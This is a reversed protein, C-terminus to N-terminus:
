RKIITGKANKKGQLAKKANTEDTIIAKGHINNTVFWNCAEVKPLMSGESFEQNDIYRQSEIVNMETILKEGQEDYNLYVGPVATLILLIDANLDIALRASTMDKDIVADIGFYENNSQIVPIGGGGCCIVINGSSALKKIINLELVKMPLPSPVVRRYGRGADEKFAFGNEKSIKDADSKSYFDGIPKSPHTFAIDNPNVLVQTILSVCNRRKKRKKLENQIAQQLDYGIYGQSMAGCEPFPMDKLALNIMGIQPGNGHTVIVKNGLTALDVITKATEKVLKQQEECTKGLANGGLAIVIKKNIM